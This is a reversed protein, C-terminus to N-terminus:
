ENEEDTVQRLETVSQIALDLVTLSDSFYNGVNSIFWSLKDIRTNLDEIGFELHSKIQNLVYNQSWINELDGIVVSQVKNFFDQNRKLQATVQDLQQQKLKLQKKLNSMDLNGYESVVSHAQEYSHLDTQIDDIAMKIKTISPVIVGLFLEKGSNYAIGNLESSSLTDILQDCGISLSEIITTTTTLNYKMAHILQESETISFTIGM